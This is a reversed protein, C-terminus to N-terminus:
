RVGAGQRPAGYNESSPPPQTASNCRHPVACRHPQHKLTPQVLELTPQVLKLTPQVLKLTPQVLKLTPQVLKLTPQVLKLTPQVLKLTHACRAPQASSCAHTCRGIMVPARLLLARSRAFTEWQVAV